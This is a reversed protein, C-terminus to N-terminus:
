SLVTVHFDGGQHTLDTGGRRGKVTNLNAAGRRRRQVTNLNTDGETERQLTQEAARSLDPLVLSPKQEHMESEWM